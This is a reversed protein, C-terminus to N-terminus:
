GLMGDGPLFTQHAAASGPNAIDVWSIHLGPKHVHLTGNRIM